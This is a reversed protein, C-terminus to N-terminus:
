EGNRGANNASRGQWFPGLREIRTRGLDTAFDGLLDDQSNQKDGYQYECCDTGRSARRLLEISGTLSLLPIFAVLDDVELLPLFAHGPRVRGVFCILALSLFGFM